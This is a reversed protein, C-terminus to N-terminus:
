QKQLIKLWLNLTGALNLYVIDQGSIANEVDSYNMTDAEIITCGEAINKSLRNKSRVFLTLAINDLEKLAEIVYCALSGSAGIIIIKKMRM